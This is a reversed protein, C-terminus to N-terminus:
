RGALVIPPPPIRDAPRSSRSGRASRFTEISRSAPRSATLRHRRPMHPVPAGDVAELHVELDVTGASRQDEKVPAIEVISVLKRATSGRRASVLLDDGDLLLRVPM